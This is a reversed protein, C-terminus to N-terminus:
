FLVIYGLACNPSKYLVIKYFQESRGKSKNM